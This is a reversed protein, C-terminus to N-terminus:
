CDRPSFVFDIVSFDPVYPIDNEKEINTDTGLVKCIYGRELMVSVLDWGSKGTQRLGEPGFEVVVRQIMEPCLYEYLSELVIAEYGETDIKLLDCRHINFDNFIKKLPKIPVMISESHEYKELDKRGSFGTLRHGGSNTPCTHIRVLKEETGVASVLLSVNKVHNRICNKVFRAGPLPHPEIAYFRAHPFKTALPLVTTGINSGVDVVIPDRISNLLHFALALYSDVRYPKGIWTGIKKKVAQKLLSLELSSELAVEFKAGEYNIIM